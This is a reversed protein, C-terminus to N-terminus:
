HSTSQTNLWVMNTVVLKESSNQKSLIRERQQHMQAIAKANLGARNIYQKPVDSTLDWGYKKCIDFGSADNAADINAEIHRLLLPYVCQRPVRADVSQM